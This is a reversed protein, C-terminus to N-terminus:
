WFRAPLKANCGSHLPRSVPASGANRTCAVPQALIITSIVDHELEIDQSDLEIASNSTGQKNRCRSPKACPRKRSTESEDGVFPRKKSKAATKAAKKSARAAKAAADAKEKAEKQLSREDFFAELRHYQSM